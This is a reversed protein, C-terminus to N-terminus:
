QFGTSTWAGINDYIAIMEAMQTATFVTKLISSLGRGLQAMDIAFLLAPHDYLTDNIPGPQAVVTQFGPLPVVSSTSPLYLLLEMGPYNGIQPDGAALGANPFGFVYFITDTAPIVPDAM